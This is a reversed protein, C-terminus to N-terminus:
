CTQTEELLHKFGNVEPPPVAKGLSPDRPTATLMPMARRNDLLTSLTTFPRTDPNGLSKEMGGKAELVLECGTGNAELRPTFIGVMVGFGFDFIEKAISENGHGLRFKAPIDRFYGGFLGLPRNGVDEGSLYAVEGLVLEGLSVKAPRAFM